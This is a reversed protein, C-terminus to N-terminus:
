VSQADIYACYRSDPYVPTMMIIGSKIKPLNDILGIQPPRNNLLTNVYERINFPPKHYEVHYKGISSPYLFRNGIISTAIGMTCRLNIEVCPNICKKGSGDVFVLMDIDATAAIVDLLAKRAGRLVVNHGTLDYCTCGTLVLEPFVLLKVGKADADIITEIVRQANYETDAVKIVPSASAVKIFGDKM